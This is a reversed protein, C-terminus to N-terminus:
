QCCSSTSKCKGCLLADLSYPGGGRIMFYLSIVWLTLPYEFGNNKALLGSSLHVSFVAVTMVCFVGFAALPTLLGFILGLGGGLEGAIALYVNIEPHPINMNGFGTIVQPINQLKGWGHVVMIIGVTIRVLTIALPELKERTNQLIM